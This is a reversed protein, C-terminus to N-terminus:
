QSTALLIKLNAVYGGGTFDIMSRRQIYWPFSTLGQGSVLIPIMPFLRKMPNPHRHKELEMEFRVNTGVEFKYGLSETGIMLWHNYTPLQYMFAEINAGKEVSKYDLEANLGAKLLHDHLVELFLQIFRDPGKEKEKPWAYSIFCSDCIEEDQLKARIAKLTKEFAQGAPEKNKISVTILQQGYWLAKEKEGIEGVVYSEHLYRPPFCKALVDGLLGTSNALDNADIKKKERYSKLLISATNRYGQLKNKMDDILYANMTTPHSPQQMRDLQDSARRKLTELHKALNARLKEDGIISQVGAVAQTLTDTLLRLRETLVAQQSELSTAKDTSNSGATQSTDSASAASSGVSHSGLTQKEKAM